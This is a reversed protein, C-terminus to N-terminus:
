EYYNQIFRHFVRHFVGQLRHFVVRSRHFVLPSRHFVKVLYKYGTSFYGLKGCTKGCAPFSSLIATYPDKFTKWL